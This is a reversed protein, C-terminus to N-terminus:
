RDDEDGFRFMYWPAMTRAAIRAPVRNANAIWNSDLIPKASDVSDFFSMVTGVETPRYPGV